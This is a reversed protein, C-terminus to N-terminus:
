GSCCCSLDALSVPLVSYALTDVLAAAHALSLHVPLTHGVAAEATVIVIWEAFGCSSSEVVV